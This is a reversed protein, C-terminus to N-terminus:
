REYGVCGSIGTTAWGGADVEVVLAVVQERGEVVISAVEEGITTFEGGYLDLFPELALNLAEEPTPLGPITPDISASEGWGSDNPCDLSGDIPAAGALPPGCTSVAHVTWRGDGNREPVAIAVDREDLVAAWLQESPLAVVTAGESVWPELSLDAVEAESDGFVEIGAGQAIEGDSCDLRGDGSTDGGASGLLEGACSSLLLGVVVVVVLSGSRRCSLGVVWTQWVM